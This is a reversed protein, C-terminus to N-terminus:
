ILLTGTSRTHIPGLCLTDDSRHYTNASGLKSDSPSVSITTESALLVYSSMLVLSVTSTFLNANHFHKKPSRVSLSWTLLSFHSRGLTGALLPCQVSNDPHTRRNKYASPALKQMMPYWISHLPSITVNTRIIQKNMTACDPPVDACYNILSNHWLFVCVCRCVDSYRRILRM